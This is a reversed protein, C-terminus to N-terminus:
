LCLWTVTVERRYQAVYGEAAAPTCVAVYGARGVLV